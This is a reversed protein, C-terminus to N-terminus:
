QSIPHEGRPLKKSHGLPKQEAEDLIRQVQPATVDLWGTLVRRTQNLGIVFVLQKKQLLHSIGCMSCWTVFSCGVIVVISVM